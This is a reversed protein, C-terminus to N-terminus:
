WNVAPQMENVMAIMDSVVSHDHSMREVLLALKSVYEERQANVRAHSDAMADMVSKPLTGLHYEAVARIHASEVAKKGDYKRAQATKVAVPSRSAM